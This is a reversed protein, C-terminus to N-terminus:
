LGGADAAHDGPGGSARLSLRATGHGSVERFDKRDTMQALRLLNCCPSPIARRSRAM